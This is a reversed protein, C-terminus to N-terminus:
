LHIFKPVSNEQELSNVQSGLRDGLDSHLLRAHKDAANHGNITIM